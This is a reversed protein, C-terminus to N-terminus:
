KRRGHREVPGAEIEARCVPQALPVASVPMLAARQVNVTPQEAALEAVVPLSRVGVRANVSSVSRM